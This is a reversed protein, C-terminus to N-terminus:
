KPLGGYVDEDTLEANKNSYEERSTASWGPRQLAIFPYHVYFKGLGDLATDCHVNDPISLFTDYFRSHMIFCHFGNIQTIPNIVPRSLGYTGGLYIDFDDPIGELFRKWGEPHPVFCDEEWVAIRDLNFEKARRIISKHSLNISRIVSQPDEIPNIIRYSDIGQRKLEDLLPGFKEPRRDDYLCYVTM